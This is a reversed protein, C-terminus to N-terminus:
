STTAASSWSNRWNQWAPRRTCIRISISWHVDCSREHCGGKFPQPRSPQTCYTRLLHVALQQALSEAYLRGGLNVTTLERLLKHGIAVIESDRGQFVDRLEVRDPNMACGELAVRQLFSLDVDIHLNDVAGAMQWQSPQGARFILIDGRHWGGEYRHGDHEALLRPGANLQILVSHKTLPPVAIAHPPAQKRWANMGQWGLPYSSLVVYQPTTELPDIPPQSALTTLTHTPM